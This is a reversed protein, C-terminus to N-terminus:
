RAAAIHACLVRFVNPLDIVHYSAGRVAYVRLSYILLSPVEVAVM